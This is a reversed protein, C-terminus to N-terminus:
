KLLKALKLTKENIDKDCFNVEEIEPEEEILALKLSIKREVFDKM